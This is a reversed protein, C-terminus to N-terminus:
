KADFARLGTFLTVNTPLREEEEDGGTVLSYHGDSKEIQGTASLRGLVTYGYQPNRRLKEAVGEDQISAFIAKPERPKGDSLVDFIAEAMTKTTSLSSEPNDAADGAEIAAWLQPLYFLDGHRVVQGRGVLRSVANYLGNPTRKIRDALPTNKGFELIYRQTRGGDAKGLAFLVLDIWNKISETGTDPVGNATQPLLIEAAAIKQKLGQLKESLQEIRGEIQVCEDRWAQVDAASLSISPPLNTM